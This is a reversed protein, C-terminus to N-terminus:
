RHSKLYAGLEDYDGSRNSYLVHNRAVELWPGVSPQVTGLARQVGVQEVLRQGQARFGGVKVHTPGEGQAAGVETGVGSRALSVERWRAVAPRSSGWLSCGRAPSRASFPVLRVDTSWARGTAANM